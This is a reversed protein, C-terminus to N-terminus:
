QNRAARWEGRTYYLGARNFHNTLISQVDENFNAVLNDIHRDRAKADELRAKAIRRQARALNVRAEAQHAEPGSGWCKRTRKGNTYTIEYFYRRGKVNEWGM